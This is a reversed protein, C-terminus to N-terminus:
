RIWIHCKRIIREATKVHTTLMKERFGCLCVSMCDSLCVSLFKTAPTKTWLKAQFTHLWFKAHNPGIYLCFRLKIYISLYISLIPKVLIFFFFCFFFSSCCFVPKNKKFFLFIQASRGRNDIEGMQTSELNVFMLALEIENGKVLANNKIITNYIMLYPTCYFSHSHTTILESTTWLIRPVYRCQAHLRSGRDVIELDIGSTKVEEM